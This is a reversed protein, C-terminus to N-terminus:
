VKTDEPSMILTSLGTLINQWVLSLHFIVTFISTSEITVFEKGTVKRCHHGKQYFRLLFRSLMNFLLSMVKGVFTQRTLATTRGATMYPHSLQVM